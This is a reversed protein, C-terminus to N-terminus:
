SLYRQRTVLALNVPKQKLKKFINSWQRKVQVTELLFDATMVDKKETCFLNKKKSSKPKRRQINM